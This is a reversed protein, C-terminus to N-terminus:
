LFSRLECSPRCRCGVDLFWKLDLFPSREVEVHKIADAVEGDERKPPLNVLDNLLTECRLLRYWVVKIVERSHADVPTVELRRALLEGGVKAFSVIEVLM